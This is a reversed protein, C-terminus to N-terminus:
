KDARNEAPKEVRSEGPKAAPSDAPKGAAQGAPNERPAYSAVIFACVLMVINIPVWLMRETGSPSILTMLLRMAVLVLVVLITWRASAPGTTHVVEAQALVVWGMALLVLAWVIAVVRMKAPLAGEIVGSQTLHGLPAGLVIALQFLIGVGALLAFVIAAQRM